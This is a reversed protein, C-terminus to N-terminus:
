EMEIVYCYFSNPHNKFVGYAYEIETKNKEEYKFLVNWKKTDNFEVPIKFEKMAKLLEDIDKQKLKGDINYILLRKHNTNDPNILARIFTHYDVYNPINLYNTSFIGWYVSSISIPNYKYILNTLYRTNIPNKRAKYESKFSFIFIVSISIILTYIIMKEIKQNKENCVILGNILNFIIIPVLVLNHRSPSLVLSGKLIMILYLIIVIDFFLIYKRKEKNKNLDILGILSIILIVISIFNTFINGTKYVFFSRICIVLNKIVYVVIDFLFLIGNKKYTLKFVNNIGGNWAIGHKLLGYDNIVLLIPISSLLTIMGSIILYIMERKKTKSKSFLIVFFLSVYIGFVFIFLQYQSYCAIINIITLYIYNSCKFKSEVIDIYKISMLLIMTIAISYPSMQCSYIINEWSYGILILGLIVLSINDKDKDKNNIKTIFKFLLLINLIGCIFSPLRGLIMNLEYRYNSNLLGVNLIYQFPAYTWYKFFDLREWPTSNGKDFITSVVGFDDWHTFHKLVMLTRVIISSVIIVCIIVILFKNNTKKYYKKLWNYIYQITSKFIVIISFYLIYMVIYYLTWFLLNTISPYNNTFTYRDLLMLVYIFILSLILEFKYKKIFKKM